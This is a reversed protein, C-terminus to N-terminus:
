EVRAVSRGIKNLELLAYGTGQVVHWRDDVGAAPTAPSVVASAGSRALLQLVLERVAPSTTWFSRENPVEAIIQVKALRAWFEHRDPSGLTAVRTGPTLGVNQLARALQWPPTSAPPTVGNQLDAAVMAIMGMSLSAVVLGLARRALVSLDMRRFRFSFVTMLCFLV